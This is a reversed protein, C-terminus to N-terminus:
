TGVKLPAVLGRLAAVVSLATIRGTRPNDASPINEIQMSLRASDADIEIRHVNRTLTPDAWVELRTRDPGIGALSLAAAVNVNAPFGKAGERASGDFVKLPTQLNELAIGREVLYPAGALGAPPKRTVIKASVITGEAAARVADLGVIAGTPVIIRGGTKRALDILDPNSLLAGVSLPMFVRGAALAPRAIDLFAAVPACEVVIDALEALKDVRVVPVPRKLKAVRSEAKAIDRASIGVLKLGEVGADLRRAVAEGIAGYGGIAVCLENRAPTTDM